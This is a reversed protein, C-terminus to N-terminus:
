RDHDAYGDGFFKYSLQTTVATRRQVERESCHCQELPQWGTASVSEMHWGGQNMAEYREEHSRLAMEICRVMTRCRMVSVLVDAKLEM